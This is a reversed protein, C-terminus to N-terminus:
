PSAPSGLMRRWLRSPIKTNGQNEPCSSCEGTTRSMGCVRRRAPSRRRASDESIKFLVHQEPAPRPRTHTLDRFFEVFQQFLAAYREVINSARQLTERSARAVCESDTLALLASEM